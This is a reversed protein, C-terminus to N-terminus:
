LKSPSLTDALATATAMSTADGKLYAVSFERAEQTLGRQEYDLAMSQRADAPLGMVFESDYATLWEPGGKVYADMLADVDVDTNGPALEDGTPAALAPIFANAWIVRADRVQVPAPPIVYDNGERHMAVVPALPPDTGIWGSSWTDEGRVPPATIVADYIMDLAGAILLLAERQNEAEAVKEM